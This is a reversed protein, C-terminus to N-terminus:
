VPVGEVRQQERRPRAAVRRHGALQGLAARLYQAIGIFAIALTGVV